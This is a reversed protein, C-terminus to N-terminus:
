MLRLNALHAEMAFTSVTPEIRVLHGETLSSIDVSGDANNTTVGRRHWGVVTWGGHNNVYDQIVEIQDRLQGQHSALAATDISRFNKVNLFQKTLHFSRVNTFKARGSEADYAPQNLIEVNLSVVYNQNTLDRGRCGRCNIHQRDCTISVCPVKSNILFSAMSFQVQLGHDCFHIQKLAQPAMMITKKPIYLNPKLPVIRTFSEIIPINGGLTRDSIAPELIGIVDGVRISDAFASLGAAGYLPNSGTMMLCLVMTSKPSCDGLMICKSTTPLTHVGTRIKKNPSVLAAGNRLQSQNGYVTGGTSPTTYSLMTAIIIKGERASLPVDSATLFSGDVTQLHFRRNSEIEKKSVGAPISPYLGDIDRDRLIRRNM